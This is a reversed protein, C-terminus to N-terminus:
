KKAMEWDRALAHRNNCQRKVCNDVCVCVRLCVCCICIAIGTSKTCEGGGTGLGREIPLCHRRHSANLHSIQVRAALLSAM